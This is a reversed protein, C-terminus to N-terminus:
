RAPDPVKVTGLYDRKAYSVSRGEIKVEYTGNLDGRVKRTQLLCALQRIAEGLVADEKVIQLLMENTCGEPMARSM